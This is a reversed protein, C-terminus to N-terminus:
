LNLTAFDAQNIGQTSGYMYINIKDRLFIEKAVQRIDDETIKQLDAIDKRVTPKFKKNNLLNIGFYIAIDIPKIRNFINENKTVNVIKELEEPTMLSHKLKKLERMIIQIGDLIETPNIISQVLFVGTDSYAIPYAASNYTIGKRERLARSLRSSFGSSLLQALLDIEKNKTKYLDYMPFAILVYIQQFSKDNKIYVYPETQALMNNIILQTEEHKETREVDYEEPQNPLTALVRSIIRYIPEPNFKGAIIFVTRNPQYHTQRFDIFDRRQFSNVTDETGIISRELPTGRFLKEHLLMYLKMLPMDAHMRMEEVIVKKEKTIEKSEIKPNIYLDLVIDLIKKTDIANGYIYYFTHEVTTAANYVTGLIDLENFLQKVTRHKTGKFMMHELFHAIGHQEITENRSGAKVFFATSIIQTDTMPILVVTMKNPLIRKIYKM